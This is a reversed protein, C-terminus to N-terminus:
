STEERSDKPRANSLWQLCGRNADLQRYISLLVPGADPSPAPSSESSLAKRLKSALDAADGTRFIWTQVPRTAVDSAVCRVGLMLAERVSIADGDALTPRVFADCRQILALAQSHELEGFCGLFPALKKFIPRQKLNEESAGPGFLALGVRPYTPTLQRLAEAMLELGYVPSELYAMAVLPSWRSRANAFGDPAPGARVESACFAPQVVIRAPSVGAEVLAREIQQSVAIVAGYSSLAARVLMRRLGSRALFEPCRGSHVTVVPPRPWRYGGVSGVIWWAKSNNGSVHLHPLWGQASLRSLEFAFRWAKRTSIVEPDACEGKGINLVRATIGHNRLFRHVQELHVAIGGYPPPYDGVLLIKM